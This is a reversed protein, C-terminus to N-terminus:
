EDVVVAADDLDFLRGTVDMGRVNLSKWDLPLPRNTKGTMMEGHHNSWPVLINVGLVAVILGPGPLYLSENITVRDHIGYQGCRIGLLRQAHGDSICVSANFYLMGGDYRVLDGSELRHTRYWANIADVFKEISTYHDIKVQVNSGMVNIGVDMTPVNKFENIFNVTVFGCTPLDRKDDFLRTVIPTQGSFFIAM